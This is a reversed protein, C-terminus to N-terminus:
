AYGEISSEAEMCVCRDEHLRFALVYWPAGGRVERGTITAVAWSPRRNRRVPAGADINFPAGAELRAVVDDGIGFAFAPAGAASMTM